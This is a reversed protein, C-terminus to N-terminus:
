KERQNDGPKPIVCGGAGCCGTNTFAQFLLFGSLLALFIDHVQMAQVAAFIGLALRLWRMFHWKSLLTQKIVNM